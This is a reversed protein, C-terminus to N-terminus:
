YVSLDIQVITEDSTIGYLQMEESIVFDYISNSLDIRELLEGLDLQESIMGRDEQQMMVEQQAQNLKAANAQLQSERVVREADEFAQEQSDM